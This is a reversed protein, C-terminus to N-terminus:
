PWTRARSSTFKETRSLSITPSSPSLPAPLDVSILIREPATGVELPSIRIRPLCTSMRLVVSAMALPMSVM